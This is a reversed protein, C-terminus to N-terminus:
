TFCKYIYMYWVWTCCTISQAWLQNWAHSWSLPCFTPRFHPWSGLSNLVLFSPIQELIYLYSNFLKHFYLNKQSQFPNLVHIPIMVYKKPHMNRKDFPLLPGSPSNSSPKPWGQLYLIYGTCAINGKEM